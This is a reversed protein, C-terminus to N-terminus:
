KSVLRTKYFVVYDKEQVEYDPTFWIEDESIFVFNFGLGEEKKSLHALSNGM